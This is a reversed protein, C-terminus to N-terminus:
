LGRVDARVSAPRVTRGPPRGMVANLERALEAVLAAAPMARAFSAGTGAWHAGFGHEGAAKAASDLAKGAAYAVPYDPVDAAAVRDGWRTFENSLCRAPRGSIVRTMTTGAAAGSRLAARYGADASSEPCGVFATGLQAAVAGAARAAAVGAGDMIGGAAIVPLPQRGVLLRVLAFTGLRDDGADPDFVGRHGGAEYGQAVLVDVGAAAAARAEASSTVTAMLVAGTSRLAAVHGAPPLGFHFSVVAPRHHVLVALMADGAVFSTYVEALATPPEGGYRRFQGAM